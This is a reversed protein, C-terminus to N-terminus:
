GADEASRNTSCAGLASDLLDPAKRRSSFCKTAGLQQVHRFCFRAAVEGGLMLAHGVRMGVRRKSLHVVKDPHNRQLTDWSTSSLREAEPPEVIRLLEIPWKLLDDSNITPM